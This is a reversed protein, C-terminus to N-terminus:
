RILTGTVLNGWGSLPTEELNRPFLVSLLYTSRHFVIISPNFVRPPTSAGRLAAPGCPHFDKPQGAPRSPRKSNEAFFGWRDDPADIERGIM